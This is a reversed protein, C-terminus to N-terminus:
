DMKLATNYIQRQSLDDKLSVKPQKVMENPVNKQYTPLYTSKKVKKLSSVKLKIDRMHELSFSDIAIVFIALSIVLLILFVLQDYTKLIERIVDRLTGYEYHINFM